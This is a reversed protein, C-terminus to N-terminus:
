ISIVSPQSAYMTQELQITQQESLLHISAIRAMAGGHGDGLTLADRGCASILGNHDKDIITIIAAGKLGNLPHILRVLYARASNDTWILVVGDSIPKWNALKDAPILQHEQAAQRECGNALASTTYSAALLALVVILPTSIKTIASRGIQFVASVGM